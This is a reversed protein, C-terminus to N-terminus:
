HYNAPSTFAWTSYNHSFVNIERRSIARKWTKYEYVFLMNQYHDSCQNGSELILGSLANKRVSFNSVIFTCFNIHLCDSTTVQM